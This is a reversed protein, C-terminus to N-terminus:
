LSAMRSPYLGFHRPARGQRAANCGAGQAPYRTVAAAWTRPRIRQFHDGGGYQLAPIVYRNVPVHRWEFKGIGLPTFLSTRAFEDLAMRTANEITAGALFANISCYNYKEGPRGKM